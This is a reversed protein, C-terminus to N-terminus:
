KCLFERLNKMKDIECIKLANSQKIGVAGFETSIVPVERELAEIIKIKIGGGFTIPVLLCDISNWFEELDEVYGVVTLNERNFPAIHRSCGGAVYFNYSKNSPAIQKRIIEFAEINPPWDSGLFGFTKINEWYVKSPLSYEISKVHVKSQCAFMSILGRSDEEHLTYINDSYRSVLWESFYVSWWKFVQIYDGAKIRSQLATTEHNHCRVSITSKPRFIKLSLVLVGLLSSDLWIHSDKEIPIKKLVERITKFTITGGIGILSYILSHFSNKTSAVNQRQSHRNLVLLECNGDLSFKQHDRSFLWKAGNSNSHDNITIFFKM